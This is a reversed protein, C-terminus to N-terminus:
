RWKKKKNRNYDDDLNKNKNKKKKSKFRQFNDTRNYDEDSTYDQNPDFRWKDAM